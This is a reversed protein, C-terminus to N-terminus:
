ELPTKSGVVDPPPPNPPASRPHHSSYADGHVLTHSTSLSIQLLPRFLNDQVAYSRNLGELHGPM